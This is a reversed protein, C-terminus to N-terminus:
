IGISISGSTAVGGGGGASYMGTLSSGPGYTVGSKVNTTAVVVYTGSTGNDFTVTSLVSAASPVVLTGTSVSAAGFTVGSRVNATTVVVYTGTTADVNVGFLTNAASPVYCTGTTLADAVGYTVGHRTDSANSLTLSGASGGVYNDHGALVYKADVINAPDIGSSALTGILQNNIGYHAPGGDAPRKVNAVVPIAIPFATEGVNGSLSAFGTLLSTDMVFDGYNDEFTANGVPKATGNLICGTIIPARAIGGITTTGGSYDGYITNGATANGTILTTNAGTTLGINGAATANGGITSNYINGYPVSGSATANGTITCGLIDNDTATANGGVTCNVLDAASCNGTTTVTNLSVGPSVVSAFAFTNLSGSGNDVINTTPCSATFTCSGSTAANAIVIDASITCGVLVASTGALGADLSLNIATITPSQVTGPGSMLRTGGSGAISLAAMDGTTSNSQVVVDTMADPLDLAPITNGVDDFYNLVNGRDGDSAGASPNFYLTPM